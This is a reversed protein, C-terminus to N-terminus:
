AGVPADVVVEITHKWGEALHEEIAAVPDLDTPPEFSEDFEEVDAVRDIRLIRRAGATHSWGLLYWKGYRVVIAWPDVDM